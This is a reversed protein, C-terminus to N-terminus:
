ARISNFQVSKIELNSLCCLVAAVAAQFFVKSGVDQRRPDCSGTPLASSGRASVFICSICLKAFICSFCQTVSWFHFLQGFHVTVRLSTAYEVCCLFIVGLLFTYLVSYVWNIRVDSIPSLIFYSYWDQQNLRSFESPTLACIDIGSKNYANFLRPLSNNLMQSSYNTRFRHVICRETNRTSRSTVRGELSYLKILSPDNKRNMYHFKQPLRHSNAEHVKIIESTDFLHETRTDYPVNALARAIRKQLVFLKSLNTDTTTGWVLQNCRGARRINQAEVTWM